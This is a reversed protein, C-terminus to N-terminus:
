TEGNGADRWYKDMAAFMIAVSMAGADVHGLAREGTFKARGHKAVMKTTAQAGDAAARAADAFASDWDATKTFAEVAPHLADVMTKDGPQAHGRSMVGELGATWMAVMDDRNLTAKGKVATSAKLFIIGFLAGSAGGMRNMLAQSTTRLVEPPSPAALDNALRAAEAFATSIGTGHDGDGLASDLRNLDDCKAVIAEAMQGIMEALQKGTIENM